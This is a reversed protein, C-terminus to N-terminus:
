SSNQSVLSSFNLKQLISLFSSSMWTYVNSVTQELHSINHPFDAASFSIYFQTDDAYFNHSSSSDSIVKSLPTTHLDFQLPGVVFGQPVGYLLQHNYFIYYNLVHHIYAPYCMYFQLFSKYECLASTSLQLNEVNGNFKTLIQWITTFHWCIKSIWSPPM